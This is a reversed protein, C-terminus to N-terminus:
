ASPAAITVVTRFRSMPGAADPLRAQRPVPSSDRRPSTASWPFEMWSKGTTPSPRRPSVLEGLTHKHSNGVVLSVGDIAQLVDPARQAYCGTVVIKADPNTRHIRRITSRADRDAEATVTCTNVVILDAQAHQESQLMGRSLLDKAISAGDAQSTRCGFNKVSFVRQM